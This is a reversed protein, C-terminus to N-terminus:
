FSVQLLRSVSRFRRARLGAIPARAGIRTSPGRSLQGHPSPLESLLSRGTAQVRNPQGGSLGIWDAERVGCSEYIQDDLAPDCQQAVQHIRVCRRQNQKPAIRKEAYHPRGDALLLFEGDSRQGLCQM